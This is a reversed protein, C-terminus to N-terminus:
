VESVVLRRKDHIIGLAWGASTLKNICFANPNMEGARRVTRSFYFTSDLCLAQRQVVLTTHTQTITLSQYEGIDHTLGAGM